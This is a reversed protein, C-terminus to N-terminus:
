YWEKIFRILMYAMNVILIFFIIWSWKSDDFGKFSIVDISRIYYYYVYMVLIIVFFLLINGILKQLYITKADGLMGLAAASHGKLLVVKDELFSKDELLQKVEVDSARTIEGVTDMNLFLRDKLNRMNIQIQTLDADLANYVTANTNYMKYAPYMEIMENLKSMFSNELNDLTSRFQEPTDIEM